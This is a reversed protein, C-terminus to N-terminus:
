PTHVNEELEAQTNIEVYLLLHTRFVVEAGRKKRVVWSNMATTSKRIVSVRRM